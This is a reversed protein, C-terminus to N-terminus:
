CSIRNKRQKEDDTYVMSKCFPCKISYYIHNYQSNIKYETNEAMFICDCHKCIFLKTGKLKDIKGVKLIKM